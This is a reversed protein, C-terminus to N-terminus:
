RAIQGFVYRRIHAPLAVALGAPDALPLGTSQTVPIVGSWVPWTEDGAVETAMGTSVKASAEDLPMSLVSTAKLEQATMPRLAAWRGPWHLDVFHELQAAKAKPDHTVTAQGMVMVSRYNVSHEFASRALVIGDTLTATLCVSAGDVARLMRSAASGHWFIRGGERWALTPTVFPAGDIVYAVHVVPCADLIAHITSADYRAKDPTRKVRTRASPATPRPMPVKSQPIRSCTLV